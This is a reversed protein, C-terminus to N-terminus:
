SGTKYIKYIHTIIYLKKVKKTYSFVLYAKDKMSNQAETEWRIKQTAM